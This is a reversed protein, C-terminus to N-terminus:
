INYFILSFCKLHYIKNIGDKNSVAIMAQEVAAIVSDWPLLSDMEDEPIMLPGSESFM